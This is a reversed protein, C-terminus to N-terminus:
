RKSGPSNGGFAEEMAGMTLKQAADMIAKFQEATLDEYECLANFGDVGLLETLLTAAAVDTGKDRVARLYRLAVVARPRAPVRYERGDLEFLVITDAMSAASSPPLTVLAASVTPTIAEATDNSPPPGDDLRYGPPVVYTQPPLTPAQLYDM